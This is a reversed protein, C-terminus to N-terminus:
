GGEFVRDLYAQLDATKSLTVAPSPKAPAPIKGAAILRWYHALSIGLFVAADRPRLAPPFQGFKAAFAQAASQTSAKSATRTTM